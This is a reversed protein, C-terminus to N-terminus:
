PQLTSVATAAQLRASTPQPTASQKQAACHMAALYAFTMGPGLTVGPAPYQGGMISHMDNGCAYLGPIAEGRSNLLRAHVDTQLGLGTGLDAPELRVAFFPAQSLPGLSPNPQHDADGNQRSLHDEGRGFQDDHGKAAIANMGEVSEALQAAPVGIATALSAIDAAQKLYGNDIWYRANRAGPRILGMGYRKLAVADCILWCPIAGSAYQARSFEHYCLGENVFRRGSGDVAWIGPKGRDMLIHPFVITSGDPRSATSSPFWWANDGQCAGLVGGQALGLELTAGTSLGTTATHTPTPKPLYRERWQRNGSFGGGALILGKRCLLTRNGNTTKVRVRHQGAGLAEVSLVTSSLQLRVPHSLLSSLLSAVLANGMALRTGRAYHLRDKFYRVALKIAHWTGQRTKGAQLLLDIDAKSVMMGRFVMFEQLPPRVLALAAGLRRADFIEPEIARYGKRAGALWPYYDSHRPCPKFRV